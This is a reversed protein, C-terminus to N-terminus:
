QGLRVHRAFRFHTHHQDHGMVLTNLFDVYQGLTFEYKMCYFASYGNPFNSSITGAGGMSNVGSQSAGWLKGAEDACEIPGANTIEFPTTGGGGEYLDGSGTGGSGVKFSGEAVYVMELGFAQMHVKAAPSVANSSFNWVAQVNTVSLNGTGEAARRIFLGVRDDPVVIEIGTGTGTSYGAPNTGTGELIVHQWNNAADGDLLAKFFVWAADHNINTYLWSNEWSIDFQVKATSKDIPIVTVNTVQLNNAQASLGALALVGIMVATQKWRTRM